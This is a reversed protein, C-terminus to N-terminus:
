DPRILAAAAVLRDNDRLSLPSLLLWTATVVASLDTSPSFSTDKSHKDRAAARGEGCGTYNRGNATRHGGPAGRKGGNDVTAWAGREAARREPRERSIVASSSTVPPRRLGAPADRA